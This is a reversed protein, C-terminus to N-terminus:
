YGNGWVELTIDPIIAGLTAELQGTIQPFVESTLHLYYATEHATSHGMYTQLYPMMSHINKGELAWRRLCHVAFTHRLDHIRPGGPKVPERSKGCNPIGAKRLFERHNNEVTNKSIHASGDRSYPFLWAEPASDKHVQECYDKIRVLMSASVPVQRVRSNKGNNITIIGNETDVEGFKILTTETVRLGCTYLLRLLLPLVLQRYPVPNYYALKDTQEFYRRLEDNSYIYPMYHPAKPLMNPPLMYPEQGMRVLYRALERVPSTRGELTKPHEYKRLTAWELMLERTLTTESPYKELCFKDFDKLWSVQVDYKFGLAKKEEVFGVLYEKFNSQYNPM